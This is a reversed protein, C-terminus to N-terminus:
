DVKITIKLSKKSNMMRFLIYILLENFLLKVNVVNNQPKINNKLM